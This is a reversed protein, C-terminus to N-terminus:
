PCTTIVRIQDSHANTQFTVSIGLGGGVIAYSDGGELGRDAELGTPYTVTPRGLIPDSLDLGATTSIVGLIPNAFQAGGTLNSATVADEHFFHGRVSTGAAIFGEDVPLDAALQVCVENFAFINLDSQIAGLVVSAPAPVIQVVDGGVNTIAAAASTATLALGLTAAAARWPARPPTSSSAVSPRWVRKLISSTMASGENILPM